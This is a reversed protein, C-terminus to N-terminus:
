MSTLEVPTIASRVLKFRRLAERARVSGPENIYRKLLVSTDSYAPAAAMLPRRSRSPADPPDIRRQNPDRPLCADARAEDGPAAPRRGGDAAQGGGAPGPGRPPHPRAPGAPTIVAIPKGRETLVVEQGAKVARIAKSFKQNAERLGMHM